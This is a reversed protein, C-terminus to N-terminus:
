RPDAPTESPQSSTGFGHLHHLAIGAGRENGKSILPHDHFTAQRLRSEDLDMEKPNTATPAASAGLSFLGAQAPSKEADEHWDLPLFYRCCQFKPSETSEGDTGLHALSKQRAKLGLAHLPLPFWSFARRTGLFVTELSLSAEWFPHPTCNQESAPFNNIVVASNKTSTPRLWQPSQRGRCCASTPAGGAGRVQAPHGHCGCISRTHGAPCTQAEDRNPWAQEAWLSSPCPAAGWCSLDRDPSQKQTAVQPSFFFFLGFGLRGKLEQLHPKTRGGAKELM